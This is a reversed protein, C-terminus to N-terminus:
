GHEALAAPAPPTGPLRLSLAGPIVEFRVRLCGGVTDGDLQYAEPEAIEIEVSRATFRDLLKASRDRRTLVKATLAVKDRWTQPSAVLLDLLGDDARAD